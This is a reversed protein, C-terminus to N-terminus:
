FSQSDYYKKNAVYEKAVDYDSCGDGLKATINDYAEQPMGNIIQDSWDSRGAFGLVIFVIIASVIIQCVKKM